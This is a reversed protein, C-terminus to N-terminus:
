GAAASSIMRSGACAPRSTPLIRATVWRRLPSGQACGVGLEPMTGVWVPTAYERCIEYVALANSFGGVRQIKINAIQLSGLAIYIRLRRRDRAEDLCV